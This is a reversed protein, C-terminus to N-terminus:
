ARASTRSHTSSLCRPLTEKTPNFACWSRISRYRTGRAASASGSQLRAPEPATGVHKPFGRPPEPRPRAHEAPRAAVESPRKGGAPCTRM